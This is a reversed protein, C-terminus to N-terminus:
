YRSEMENGCILLLEDTMASVHLTRTRRQAWNDNIAQINIKRKVYM